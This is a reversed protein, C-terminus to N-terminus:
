EWAQIIEHHKPIADLYGQRLRPSHIDAAVKQLAQYALELYPRAAQPNDTAQLILYHHYYLHPLNEVRWNTQKLTEMVRTSRELAATPQGLRLLALAAFSDARAADLERGADLAMDRAQNLYLLAKEFDQQVLLIDGLLIKSECQFNFDEAERLLELARETVIQAEEMQNLSYLAMGAAWWAVGLPRLFEAQEMFLISQKVEALAEASCGMQNLTISLNIRVMAENYDHHIQKYFDRCRTFAELAREYETRTSLYLTGLFSLAKIEGERDGAARFFEQAQNLSQYSHIEDELMWYIRSLTIECRGRLSLDDCQSAYVLAQRAPAIIEQPNHTLMMWEARRLLAVALHHPDNLAHALTELQHIAAEREPNRALNSLVLELRSWLDWELQLDPDPLLELARRYYGAAEENAYQTEAQKAAAHLYTIAEPIQGAQELHHAIMGSRTTHASNQREIMWEAVRAHYARRETKLLSEYTADRMLAHRFLYEHTGSITSTQQPAIMERRCLATLAPDPDIKDPVVAELYSVAEKWFIRGIVAACKLLTQEEPPLSDFRAQLVATLTSPIGIEALWQSDIPHTEASSETHDLLMKILEEIYFPNGEAQAVILERLPASIEATKQLIAQVLTRSEIVSLPHLNVRSHSADELKQEPHKEYFTPRATSLILLPHRHDAQQIHALATLSGIDAWHLDELLFIAGQTQPADAAAAFLQGLYNFARNHLQQPDRRVGLLHPSNPFDLGILSGIFHAKMVAHPTKNMLSLIGQELKERALEPADQEQIAFELMLLRRLFAFPRHEDGELAFSKFCHVKEPQLELWAEFEQLLRSKGIGAEGVISLAFGQSNQLVRHFAQQLQELEAARGIMPTEIGDMGRPDMQFARPKAKIIQYTQIPRSKGKIELLPQAQVVFLGRIHRYTEQSILIVGAPAAAELRSALNVTDGMATFERTSAVEGLLAPGTHIGIHLKLQSQHATNFNTLATQLALASEVARQPDDEHSEAAGWFAMIGDGLHKDIWGTHTTIAADLPLWLENMMATLDEADLNESLATFGSIDAFLVTIQKRQPAPTPSNEAMLGALKEQLAAISANVPGDGLLPRLHEQAALASQLQIIQDKIAHEM